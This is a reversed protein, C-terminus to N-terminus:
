WCDDCCWHTGLRCVPQSPGSASPPIQSAAPQSPAKIKAALESAKRALSETESRRREAESRGKAVRAFTTVAKAAEKDVKGEAEVGLKELFPLLTTQLRLEGKDPDIHYQDLPVALLRMLGEVFADDSDDEFDALNAPEGISSDGCLPPMSKAAKM